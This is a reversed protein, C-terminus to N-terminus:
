PNRGSNIWALATNYAASGNAWITGGGHAVAGSPKQLFLSNANNNSSRDIAFDYAQSQNTFNRSDGAPFGGGHCSANRCTNM